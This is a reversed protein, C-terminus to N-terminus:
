LVTKKLLDRINQLRNAVTDDLQRGDYELRVGGLTGPEVRSHLLINKGTIARLKQCLKETQADTMSVATIATVPLIGNDKYYRSMYADCCDSFYRIYGKETLIKLFNLTYPAIKGRFSDDLIQCREQKSLNPAALLRLFVPERDFSERLVTLEESIAGSLDESAALEYLAGGYVTGAETM